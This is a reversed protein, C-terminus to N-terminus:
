GDDRLHVDIDIQHRQAVEVLPALDAASLVKTAALVKVRDADSHGEVLADLDIAGEGEPSRVTSITEDGHLMLVEWGPPIPPRTPRGGEAEGTGGDKVAVAEGGSEISVVGGLQPRLRIPSTEFNEAM